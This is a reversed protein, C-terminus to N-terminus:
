NALDFVARLVGSLAGGIPFMLWTIYWAGTSFSLVFYGALILMWLAGDVAKFLKKKESGRRNFEKFEEVMTRDTPQPHEKTMSNYILLGGGAAIMVFMLVPGAVDGDLLICPVVSLIFLMVAAATLLASRKQEQVSVAAPTERQLGAILESVDGIGAVAINYAAEESKGENLLDQYKDTLNQLMEEKLEVTQRTQPADRFLEEVHARLKESTTM